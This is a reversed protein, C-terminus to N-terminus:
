VVLAGQQRQGAEELRREPLDEVGADAEVAADGGQRGDLGDAQVGGGRALQRRRQVLEPARRRREVGGGALREGVAAGAVLGEEAAGAEGALLRVLAVGDRIHQRQPLFPRSTVFCVPATGWRRRRRDPVGRRVVPRLRRRHDFTRLVFADEGEA